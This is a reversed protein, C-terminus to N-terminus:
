VQSQQTPESFILSREQEAAWANLQLLDILFQMLVFGISYGLLSVVIWRGMKIYQSISFVQITALCAGFVAGGLAASLLKYNEQGASTIGSAILFGLVLGASSAVFWRLWMQLGARMSQM